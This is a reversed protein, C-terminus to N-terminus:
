KGRVSLPVPLERSGLVPLELEAREKIIQHRVVPHSPDLGETGDEGVELGQPLMEPIPAGELDGESRDLGVDGRSSAVLLRVGGDVSFEFQKAPGQAEGM